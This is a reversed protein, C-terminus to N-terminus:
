ENLNEDLLYNSGKEFLMHAYFFCGIGCMLFIDLFIWVRRAETDHYVEDMLEFLYTFFIYPYVLFHVYWVWNNRRIVKNEADRDRFRRLFIVQLFHM